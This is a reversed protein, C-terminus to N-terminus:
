LRSYRGSCDMVDVLRSVDPCTRSRPVFILIVPVGRTFVEGLGNRERENRGLFFRQDPSAKEDGKEQPHTSSHFVKEFLASGSIAM